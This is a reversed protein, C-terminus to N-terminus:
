YQVTLQGYLRPVVQTSLVGLTQITETHAGELDMAWLGMSLQEDLKLTTGFDLRSYAAVPPIGPNINSDYQYTTDVWYYAGNLRWGPLTEWSARASLINHPPPAGLEANSSNIMNQDYGQYTYALALSFTKVPDWKASAECGYIAGTGTNKAQYENVNGFVDWITGGAPSVFSGSVEPFTVLQSYQNYFGALDASIEKTLNTRYGFEYANLIESQLSANPVLAVFDTVTTPLGGYGAPLGRIYIDGTELAQSPIRVARSVAGWLTNRPDPTFLIRGSPQWEWGTYPNNEAKLGGTVYLLDQVLTIRDQVFGSYINLSQNNPTYYWYVPNLFQDSYNRFSGGWTVENWDALHFRHQFEADFQGLNTIVPSANGTIPSLQSQNDYSYYVLAQIQSDDKFNSTWQAQLYANQDVETNVDNVYAFNVPDFIPLDFSPPNFSSLREYGFFGKQAGAQLSLDNGDLGHYDARLNARADNWADNWYGGAPNQSAQSNTAQANIKYYLSDGLVGGYRASQINDLPSGTTSVGKSYIPM